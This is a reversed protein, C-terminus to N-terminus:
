EVNRCSIISRASIVSKVGHVGWMQKNERKVFFLLSRGDIEDRSIKRHKRTYTGQSRKDTKEHSCMDM